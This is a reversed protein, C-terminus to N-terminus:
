LLKYDKDVNLCFSDIVVRKQKQKEIKGFHITNM